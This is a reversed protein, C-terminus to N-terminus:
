FEPIEKAAAALRPGRPGVPVRAPVGGAADGWDEGPWGGYFDDLPGGSPGVWEAAPVLNRWEPNQTSVLEALRRGSMRSLKSARRLADLTTRVEEVYVIKLPKGARRQEVALTVDLDKTIRVQLWPDDGALIFLFTPRAM